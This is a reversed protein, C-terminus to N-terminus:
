HAHGVAKAGAECSVAPNWQAFMGKPNARYLWVHQDYHPTFEHGEDVDPTAPDDQMLDFPHDFLSPAPGDGWTERATWYEVAVLEMRGDRQPEYILIEPTLPDLTRDTSHIRGGKRTVGALKANVYHVGMAGLGPMAVCGHLSAYGEAEAVKVDRYKSTARRVAALRSAVDPSLTPDMAELSGAVPAPRPAAVPAPRLTAAGARRAHHGVWAAGLLLVAAAPVLQRTAHLIDRM